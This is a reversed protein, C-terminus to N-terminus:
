GVTGDVADDRGSDKAACVGVWTISLPTQRRVHRMTLNVPVRLFNSAVIM